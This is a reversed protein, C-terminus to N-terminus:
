LLTSSGVVMGVVIVVVYAGGDGDGYGDGDGVGDHGNVIRDSFKNGDSVGDGDGDGNGSQFTIGFAVGKGCWTISQLPSNFLISLMESKM